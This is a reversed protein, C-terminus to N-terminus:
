IGPNELGLMKRFRIPRPSAGTSGLYCRRYIYLTLAVDISVVVFSDDFYVISYLIIYLSANNNIKGRLLTRESLMVFSSTGSL